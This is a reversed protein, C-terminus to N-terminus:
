SIIFSPLINSSITCHISSFLLLTIWAINTSSKFCKFLPPLSDADDAATPDINFIFGKSLNFLLPATSTESFILPFFFPNFRKAEITFSFAIFISFSISYIICPSTNSSAWYKFPIIKCSNFKLSTLTSYIPVTM